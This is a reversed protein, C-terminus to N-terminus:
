IFFHVALAYPAEKAAMFAKYFLASLTNTANSFVSGTGQYAEYVSFNNGLVYIRNFFFGKKMEQRSAPGVGDGRDSAIELTTKTLIRVYGL